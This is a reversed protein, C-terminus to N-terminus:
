MFCGLSCFHIVSYSTIWILHCVVCYPQTQGAFGVLPHYSVVSAMELVLFDSQGQDEREDICFLRTLEEASTVFVKTVSILFFLFELKGSYPLEESIAEDVLM